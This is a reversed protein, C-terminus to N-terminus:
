KINKQFFTPPNQQVSFISNPQAKTINSTISLLFSVHSSGGKRKKKIARKGERKKHSYTKLKTLHCVLIICCSLNDFLFFSYSFYIYFRLTLVLCSFFGRPTPELDLFKHSRVQSTWECSYLEGRNYCGFFKDTSFVEIKDERTYTKRSFFIENNEKNQVGKESWAASNIQM